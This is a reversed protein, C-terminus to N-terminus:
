EERSKIDGTYDRDRGIASMLSPVLPKVPVPEAQKGNLNNESPSINPPVASNVEGIIASYDVQATHKPQRPLSTTFASVAEEGCTPCQKMDKKINSGCSQCQM